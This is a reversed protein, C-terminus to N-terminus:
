FITSREMYIVMNEWPTGMTKGNFISSRELEDIMDLRAVVPIILRRELSTWQFLTLNGNFLRSWSILDSIVVVIGQIVM